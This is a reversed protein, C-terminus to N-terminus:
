FLISQLNTVLDRDDRKPIIDQDNIEYMAGDKGPTYDVLASKQADIRDETIKSKIEYNEKAVEIQAKWYKTWDSDSDSIELGEEFIDLSPHPAEIFVKITEDELSTIETEWYFYKKGNWKWQGSKNKLDDWINEILVVTENFENVKKKEEVFVIQEQVLKDGDIYPTNKIIKQAM